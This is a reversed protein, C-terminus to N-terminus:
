SVQVAKYRFMFKCYDKRINTRYFKGQTAYRTKHSHTDVAPIIFDSFIAPMDEKKLIKHTFVATKVKVVNDFNLIELLNNLSYFVKETNAYGSIFM